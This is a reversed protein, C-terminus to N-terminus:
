EYKGLYEGIEDRIKNLKREIKKHEDFFNLADVITQADKESEILPTADMGGIFFPFLKNDNYKEVTYKKAM